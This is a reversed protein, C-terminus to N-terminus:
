ESSVPLLNMVNNCYNKLDESKTRNGSVKSVWVKEATLLMAGLEQVPTVGGFVHYSHAVCSVVMRYVQVQFMKVDDGCM